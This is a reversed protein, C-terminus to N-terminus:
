RRADLQTFLRDIDPFLLLRDGQYQTGRVIQRLPGPLTSPPTGLADGDLPALRGIDTVSLGADFARGKLVVVNVVAQDTTPPYGYMYPLDYVTVLDGRLNIVGTLHRPAGPLPVVEAGRVLRRIATIPLAFEEPGVCVTLHLTQGEQSEQMLDKSFSADFDLQLKRLRDKLNLLVRYPEGGVEAETLIADVAGQDFSVGEGAEGVSTPDLPEFGNM